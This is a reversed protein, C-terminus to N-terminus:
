SVGALFRTGNRRIYAALANAIQVGDAVPEYVNVVLNVPGAGFVSGASMLDGTATKLMTPNLGGTTAIGAGLLQGQPLGLNILTNVTEPIADLQNRYELLAEYLPSGPQLTALMMDFAAVQRNVGDESDLTAGNLEAYQETLDIAADIQSSLSADADSVVDAFDQQAESFDRQRQIATRQDGYLEEILDIQKQYADNVRQIAAKDKDIADRMEDTVTIVNSTAAEVQGLFVAYKRNESGGEGTARNLQRQVSLNNKNEERLRIVETLFNNLADTSVGFKDAAEEVNLLVGRGSVDTSAAKILENIPGAGRSAYDQVDALSLGLDNVTALLMAIQDDTGAL